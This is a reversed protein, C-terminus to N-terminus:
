EADGVGFLEHRNVVVDGIFHNLFIRHAKRLQLIEGTQVINQTTAGWHVYGGAEEGCLRSLEWVIPVIPHGTRRLGEIVNDRNLLEVKAKAVIVDAASNPVVGLEAEAVALAAEVDLWSQWGAEITFLERIGPDRVRLATPNKDM